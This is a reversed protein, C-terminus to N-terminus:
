GSTRSAKAGNITAMTLVDEATILGIQTTKRRATLMALVRQEGIDFATTWNASDCGLAVNVGQAHLEVHRGYFTGDVPPM